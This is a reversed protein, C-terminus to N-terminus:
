RATRVSVVAVGLFGVATVTWALADLAPNPVVVAFVLHLPQSAILALAAWRPVVRWLAAGLLMTGLIHGAVFAGVALSATPNAEVATGLAAVAATPIGAAPAAHALQDFVAIYSLSSFGVWALVAGVGGLLPRARMATRCVILVGIPLTLLALYTLWLVASQATPNAAIKAAITAPDDVTDYPLVGRLAGVALPGIPAILIAANLRLSHAAGPPAAPATATM